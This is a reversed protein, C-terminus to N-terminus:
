AEHELHQQVARRGGSGRSDIFYRIMMATTSATNHNADRERKRERTRSSFDACRTLLRGGDLVHHGARVALHVQGLALRQRSAAPVEAVGRM